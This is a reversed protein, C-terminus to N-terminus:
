HCLCIRPAVPEARQSLDRLDFGSATTIFRLRTIGFIHIETPLQPAFDGIRFVADRRRAVIRVISRQTHASECAACGCVDIVPEAVQNLLAARVGPCGHVVIVAGAIQGLADSGGTRDRLIGIISKIPNQGRGERRVARFIDGVRVILAAM